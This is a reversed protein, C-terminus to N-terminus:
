DKLKKDEKSLLDDIYAWMKVCEVEAYEKWNNHMWLASARNVVWFLDFDDVCLIEWNDGQPEEFADHWVDASHEDVMKAGNVSHNINSPSSLIDGSIYNRVLKLIEKERTM